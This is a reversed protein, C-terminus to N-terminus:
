DPLEVIGATHGTYPLFKEFIDSTRIRLSSTNICPHCGLYEAEAVEKDIYLHVRHTKDNMLGLVTVSGPTLDLLEEMYEPSAFSLRASGILKSFIATRFKKDGPMMLLYFETKQSNCLFLNKCIKIGLLKDVQDCDAVTNMIEHDVRLYPIDLSDLVDYTRIEKALRGENTDPRATYITPDIAPM